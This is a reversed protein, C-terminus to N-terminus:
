GIPCGAKATAKGSNRSVRLCAEDLAELASAPIRKLLSVLADPWRPFASGGGGAGAREVGYRVPQCAACM